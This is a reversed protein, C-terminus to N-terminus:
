ALPLVTKKAVATGSEGKAESREVVRVGVISPAVKQVLKEFGRDFGSADAAEPQQAHVPVSLLLLATLSLALRM